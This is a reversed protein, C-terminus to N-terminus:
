NEPEGLVHHYHSVVRAVPDRLFAVYRAPQPFAEHIGFGMHGQVVRLARKDADPLVRLQEVSRRWELGRTQYVTGAPYQRDLVTVFTRGATKPIHLFVLLDPNEGGGVAASAAPPAQEVDTM